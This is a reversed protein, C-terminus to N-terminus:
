IVLTWYGVNKRGSHPKWFKLSHTKKGRYIIHCPPQFASYDSLVFRGNSALPESVRTKVAASLWTSNSCFAFKCLLSYVYFLGNSSLPKTLVNRRCSISVTVSSSNSTTDHLWNEGLYLLVCIQSLRCDNTSSLDTLNCDHNLTWSHFALWRVFYALSTVSKYILGLDTVTSSFNSMTWSPISCTKPLWQNHATIISQLQLQLEFLDLGSGTIIWWPVVSM